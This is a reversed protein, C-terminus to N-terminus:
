LGRGHPPPTSGAQARGSSSLLPRVAGDLVAPIPSRGVGATLGTADSCRLALPAQTRDGPANPERRADRVRPSQGRGRYRGSLKEERAAPTIAQFSIASWGFNAPYGIAGFQNIQAHRAAPLAVASVAGFRDPEIREEFPQTAIAAAVNPSSDHFIICAQAYVRAAAVVENRCTRYILWCAPALRSRAGPWRRAAPHEIRRHLAPYNVFADAAYPAERPCARRRARPGQAGWATRRGRGSPVWWRAGPPM